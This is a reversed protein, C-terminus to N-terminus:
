IFLEKYKPDISINELCSERFYRFFEYKVGKINKDYSSLVVHPFSVGIWLEVGNHVIDVVDGQEGVPEGIGASPLVEVLDGISFNSSTIM